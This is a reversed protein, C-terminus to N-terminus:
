KATVVFETRRNRARGDETGNDAIPLTDGYGIAELRDAKVGKKVLAAKVADARRQSLKQNYEADGTNNLNDTHGQIRIQLMPYVKMMTVVDDVTQTSSVPVESKDLGFNIDLLSIDGINPTNDYTGTALLTEGPLCLQLSVNHVGYSPPTYEFVYYNRLRYYVDEFLDDIETTRYIKKYMGGTANSMYQLYVEDINEGFGVVCVMVGHKKAEHMISDRNLVSSNELGDTFVLVAKRDFERTIALVEVGKAAADAIATAGGFGDLGTIRLNKKLINTDRTLSSEVKIQDDYKILALADEPRKKGILRAAAEQIAVAREEGMSGSHDMVLALATPVRDKETVETLTYRTIKKTTGNAEDSLECWKAKWKGNAAGSLYNGLTDVLHGIVKVRNLNRADIRTIELQTHNASVPEGPVQAVQKIFRPDYEPPPTADFQSAPEGAAMRKVTGCSNWFMSGLLLFSLIPLLSRSRM